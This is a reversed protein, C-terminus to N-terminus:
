AYHESCYVLTAILGVVLGVRIAFATVQVIFKAITLKVVLAVFAAVALADGLTISGDRYAFFAASAGCLLSVLIEPDLPGSSQRFDPSDIVGEGGCQMCTGSGGELTPRKCTGHCLPCVVRM